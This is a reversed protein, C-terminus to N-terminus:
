KRKKRTYEGWVFLGDENAPCVTTVIKEDMSVYLSCSTLHHLLGGYITVMLQTCQGQFIDSSLDYVLLIELIFFSQVHM